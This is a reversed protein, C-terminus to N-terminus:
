TELMAALIKSMEASSPEGRTTTQPASREDVLKSIVNEIDEKKRRGSSYLTSDCSTMDCAAYNGLIGADIGQPDLLSDTASGAFPDPDVTPGSIERLSYGATQDHLVELQQMCLRGPYAERRRVDVLTPVGRLFTPLEHRELLRIDQIYVISHLPAALEYAAKSPPDNPKVYLVFLKQAVLSAHSSSDPATPPQATPPQPMRTREFNNLETEGRTNALRRM